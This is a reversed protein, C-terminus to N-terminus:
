EGVTDTIDRFELLACGWDAPYRGERVYRHFSSWPWDIARRVLGHKVPNYHIYDVHREFDRDDCIVHEWYRRQWIGGRRNRQRSASVPRESGGAARWRKPYETDGEPLRWLTHLHDPMLVVAEIEFPWRRRCETTVERLLQRAATSTLFPERDATVLTFFYTGGSVCARRWNTM